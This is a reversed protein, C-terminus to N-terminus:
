RGKRSGRWPGPRACRGARPKSRSPRGVCPRGRRRPRCPMDRATRIPLRVLQQIGVPQKCRTHAVRAPPGWMRRASAGLQLPLHLAFVREAESEWARGYQWEQAVIRNMRGVKGNKWPSYPRTYVHRARSSPNGVPGGAAVTRSGRSRRPTWTSWSGPGRASTAYPSPPLAAGGSRAPSGTSTPSGPM